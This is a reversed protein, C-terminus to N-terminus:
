WLGTPQVNEDENEMILFYVSRPCRVVGPCAPCSGPRPSHAELSVGKEGNPWHQLAGLPTGMGLVTLLFTVDHSTNLQKKM